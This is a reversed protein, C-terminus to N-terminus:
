TSACACPSLQTALNLTACVETAREAAQLLRITPPGEPWQCRCTRAHLVVHSPPPESVSCLVHAQWAPPLGVLVLGRFRLSFRWVTPQEANHFLTLYTKPWSPYLQFPLSSPPDSEYGPDCNFVRVAAADSIHLVISLVVQTGELTVMERHEFSCTPHGEAHESDGGGGGGRQTNSDDGGGGSATVPAPSTTTTTATKSSGPM